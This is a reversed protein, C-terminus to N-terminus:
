ASLVTSCRGDGGSLAWLGQRRPSGRRPGASCGQGMGPKLAHQQRKSETHPQRPWHETCLGPLTRTVWSPNRPHPREGGRSRGPMDCCQQSFRCTVLATSRGSILVPSASDGPCALAGSQGACGELAAPALSSPLRTTRPRPELASHHVGHQNQGPFRCSKARESLFDHKNVNKNSLKRNNSFCCLLFLSLGADPASGPRLRSGPVRDLDGM